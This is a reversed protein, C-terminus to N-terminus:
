EDKKTYFPCKLNRWEDAIEDFAKKAQVWPKVYKKSEYIKDAAKDARDYIEARISGIEEDKQCKEGHWISKFASHWKDFMDYGSEYEHVQEKEGDWFVCDRGLCPHNSYYQHIVKVEEDEM